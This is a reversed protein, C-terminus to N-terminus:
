ANPLVFGHRVLGKTVEVVPKKLTEPDLRFSIAMDDLLEGLTRTGNCRAILASVYPDIGGSYSLGSSLTIRNEVVEWAGDSPTCTQRLLTHPSLSFRTDLFSEDDKSAALFDELNFITEMADSCSGIMKEPGDDARFWNPHDDTRRMTILGAGVSDIEQARYCAMWEDFRETFRKGELRETHRIWTSAYTESDKFESRIVWVDCGSGEFWSALRERWDQHAYQAWNCLIQCFGGDTLHKPAEGVIKEILTDGKMGSDRYIFRANPSIVFPPNSVILDFRDTSVPAFLDGEISEIHDIGNLRANFAAIAVARPNKDTAVVKGSHRSAFLSQIGCGCGLDLVAGVTRRVTLNALTLSSSGIGMVYDPAPTCFLNRDPDFGVLFEQFPLIKMETTVTQGDIAVLGWAILTELSVPKIANRVQAVPLSVEMIFLKILTNLPTEDEIRRLLIPADPGRLLSADTVGLAGLVGNDTFGVDQLLTRFVGPDDRHQKDIRITMIDAMSIKDAEM